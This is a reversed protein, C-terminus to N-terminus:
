VLSMDGTEYDQERRSNNRSGISSSQVGERTADRQEKAFATTALQIRQESEVEKKLFVLLSQLENMMVAPRAREWAKLTELPIAFEVM